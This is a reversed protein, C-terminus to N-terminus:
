GREDIRSSARAHGGGHGLAALEDRVESRRRELIAESERDLDLIERLARIRAPDGGPDDAGLTGLLARREALIVGMGEADGSRAARLFEEALLRFRRLAASLVDCSRSTAATTAGNPLIM